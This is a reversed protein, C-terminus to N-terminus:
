KAEASQLFLRRSVSSVWSRESSTLVRRWLNVTYLALCVCTLFATSVWRVRFMTMIIVPPLLLVLAGAFRLLNGMSFSIPKKWKQVALNLLLFDVVARLTWAAAAGGIGYKRTFAAAIVLYPVLECWRIRAVVAGKDSALLLSGPVYAIGSCVIGVLLLYCAPTSQRGYDVGILTTLVPRAAVALVVAVPALAFGMSVLSRRYLRGLEEERSSSQLQSFMPLLVQGMAIAAILSLNAYTYAISYYGLSAVSTFYMLGFREANTLILEPVQSLVVLAGFNFLPWFLGPNLRPPWLQPLLHRGIAFHLGLACFNVAASTAAITVLNGGLWLIIPTSVIQLLVAGSTIATYTDFRLRVLQPTNMVNAINKLLFTIGVIRLAVIAQGRLPSGVHLLGDNIAPASAILLVAVVTGLLASLSTGTWIVEAERNSGASQELSAFRTSATGMGWDTYSLYSTLLNLFALIGYEAVGLQRVVFPTFLASAAVTTAQGTLNWATGKILKKGSM